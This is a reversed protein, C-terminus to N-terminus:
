NSSCVDTREVGAGRSHTGWCRFLPSMIHPGVGYAPDGFIQFYRREIPTDEDVDEQHAFEALADLLTSETLLFNDNRRGEVPGYLHGIIGNPLMLAQYKLSHFKKHGNYAQRQFWTPHCIRRITCDIFAFISDLPSGRAHIAAAYVKLRSPHLLHESDCGLLHEWENDLFEVLENVIESIASQARDYLMALTYMEGASRFRACLICLAELASFVHGSRTKFPDPIGLATSLDSLEDATMRFRWQCDRSTLSFLWDDTIRQGGQEPRARDVETPRLLLPIRDYDEGTVSSLYAWLVATTTPQLIPPLPLLLVASLAKVCVAAGGGGALVGGVHRVQRRTGSSRPQTGTHLQFNRFKRAYAYIEDFEKSGSTELHTFTVEKKIAGAIAKAFEPYTCRFSVVPYLKGLVDKSPDTYHTLLAVAAQGLDHGIWTHSGHRDKKLYGSNLVNEAFSGTGLCAFPVGSARLHDEIVAKNDVHHLHKFEGNSEKTASPLSSYIFFKVGVEKAADVLNKGQTIEGKGQPDAPYVDPSWFNTNGFVADSGRIADKLSAKDWLNGVVVEVGRAILAKSASGQTGTAGFITIIPTM